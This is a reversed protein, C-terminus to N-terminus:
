GSSNLSYKPVITGISSLLNAAKFLATHDPPDNTVLTNVVPYGAARLQRVREPPPRMGDVTQSDISSYTQTDRLVARLEHYRSCVFVNLQADLHVPEDLLKRFYAQPAERVDPDALSQRDASM